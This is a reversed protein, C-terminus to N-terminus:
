YLFEITSPLRRIQVEASRGITAPSGDIRVSKVPGSLPAKLVLRHHVADFTGSVAVTVRDGRKRLMYSIPGYYTQLNEVRIGTTDNVWRDPIGAALVHASDREREYLFMTLVSRIFDAGVWAHPMDGIYKPTEPDRWVVEAWQNWAAPRRDKMFFRLAEEARQKQGLEVFSGIVRTEYPTYNQYIHKKERDRFFAYYKDFTKHLQPEPIRGLEGCPDIGITTSTADFDGLEACGPIYNIRKNKMALRMSAYLNERFADRVRAYAAATDTKGLAGAITCADKLGRLTFFDDWYSHRPVDSYGEHSISEPVLGYFSREEPSGHIYKETKRQAILSEIYSVTRAVYDWKGRLWTTDHTFLFYQCVAYIFEGHSDNEPVADPGRQDIVCPIKGSPFQGKAYWDLFERVELSNGTRLLAQSMVAGDRIWSRDYCRSGPELAAGNRYALIYGLNTKVTNIVDGASPPLTIKFQNLKGQWMGEVAMLMMRYYFGAMRGMSPAPGGQNMHFPVAVVVDAPENPQLNLDYALAASAFGTHDFVHQSPPVIGRSLYESIDGQDFTTAGFASPGTMPIIRTGNVFVVGRDTWISDIPSVGGTINLAQWPPNVQFPRIALFLRARGADALSEITYRIGLTSNGPTGAELAQITVQWASTTTWTVSPIPLYGEDLSPVARVDNWTVLKGDVFLFPEITFQGKAVEVAGQEDILAKHEDGSVGLATWYSQRNLTWKPYRGKPADAAVARFFDNMSGSFAPGEIAMKKLHPHLATGSGTLRLKLFRGEGQPTAIDDRGGNGRSVAYAVNWERGDDSLEVDYASAYAASDWDLVLGGIERRYGFDVVLSDTASGAQWGTLTSGQRDISGNGPAGVIRARATRAAADDIPELRFNDIYVKGTGGTGCSVVFQIQKVLRLATGRSPGWAFTIERKRIREHTWQSPYRINLKKVWFVNEKDDILKFEFNNVPADARMDFTFEYDSPLELNFAKQAIVYGSVKSLDFDMMLANGTKGPANGITLQAGESVIPTWGDTSEFDDLLRVQSQLPSATACLLALVVFAAATPCAVCTRM